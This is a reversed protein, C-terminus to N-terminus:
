VFFVRQASGDTPLINDPSSPRVECLRNERDWVSRRALAAPAYLVELFPDIDFFNLAGYGNVDGVIWEESLNGDAHRSDAFGTNACSQL